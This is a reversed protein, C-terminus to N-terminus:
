SSDVNVHLLTASDNENAPNTQHILFLMFKTAPKDPMGSLAVRNFTTNFCPLVSLFESRRRAQRVGVWSEREMAIPWMEWAFAVKHIRHGCAIMMCM